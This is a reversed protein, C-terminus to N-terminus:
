PQQLQARRRLLWAGVLGDLLPVSDRGVLDTPRFAEIVPAVSRGRRALGWLPLAWASRGSRRRWAAAFTMQGTTEVLLLAGGPAVLRWLMALAGAPDPVVHLLSAASVVDATRGRSAVEELSAVAFAADLGPALGARAAAIMAPSRDYGEVRFGRGAALGAVLGPGCGVDIWTRGAPALAVASDHLSRYFDARSITAFFRADM